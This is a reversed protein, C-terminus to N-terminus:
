ECSRCSGPCAWRVPEKNHAEIFSNVCRNSVGDWIQLSVLEYTLDMCLSVCELLEVLAKVIITSQALPKQVKIAGDKSATAYLRGDSSYHVQLVVILTM